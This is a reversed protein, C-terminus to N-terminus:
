FIGMGIVMSNIEFLGVNKFSLMLTILAFGAFSLPSTNPIKPINVKMQKYGNTNKEWKRNWKKVLKNKKKSVMGIMLNM